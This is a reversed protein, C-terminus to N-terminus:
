ARKIQPLVMLWKRTEEAVLNAPPFIGTSSMKTAM